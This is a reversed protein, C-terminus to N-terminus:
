QRDGRKRGLERERLARELRINDELIESMQRHVQFLENELEGQQKLRDNAAAQVKKEEDQLQEIRTAQPKIIEEEIRQLLRQRAVHDSQQQGIQLVLDRIRDRNAQYEAEFRLRDDSAAYRTHRAMDRLARSQTEAENVYAQLGLIIQLRQHTELSPDLNYLLHAIARRRGVVDTPVTLAQDFRAMLMKELHDTTTDPDNIQKLLAQREAYTAAQALLWDRLRQRRQAQPLAALEKLLAARVRELEREVTKVVPKGAAAAKFQDGLIGPSNEDGLDDLLPQSVRRGPDEADVPLGDIALEHQFAALSWAQRASWDLAALYIFGGTALINLVALVKAFLPM